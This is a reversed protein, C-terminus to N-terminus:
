ISKGLEEARELVGSSELAGPADIGGTQIVGRKKWGIYDAIADYTQLIPQYEKKDGDEGCVFLYSEKIALPRPGGTGGYAYLKDIAAKIQAPFGFWYLPTSILLVECSELLVALENFDDDQVCAKGKSWCANCAKCGTINKKAADFWHVTHGAKEAGNAFAQAMKVTKSNNRPSSTLILIEKSM